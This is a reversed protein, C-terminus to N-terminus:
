KLVALILVIGMLFLWVGVVGGAVWLYMAPSVSGAYPPIPIAVLDDDADAEQLREVAQRFNAEDAQDQPLPEDKQVWPLLERRVAEDSEYRLEPKKAMMRHVIEAFRAPVDPNRETILAPEDSRHRMIREKNTGGPFPPRGTLTYYMTCGMGYQDARGDVACADYTQEPAIYDMSGVIYGAGGAVERDVNEEGEILALGLDLLKAHDSPTVRINSPKVDRHVLGKDHAHQLASAVECFLRATRPVSLPGKEQVVKSLDRGPIFEMAIFYVGLEVGVEFTSAINPHSVRSCMEMERRFRALLREERKAKKPPLIKLAVLKKQRRDRALFVAGMGGRGIPALIQFPGLVLGTAAGGLLKKAQFRTLKGHRVFHDAVTGPDARQERPIGQYAAKVDDAELVGSKVVSKLFVDVAPEM